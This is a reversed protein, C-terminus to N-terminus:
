DGTPDAIVLMKIPTSVDRFKNEYVKQKTRVNRGMAFRICLFEEGDYLLEWPIQVLYEDISILLFNAKSNKIAKKVEIALLQDFLARGNKKLEEAFNDGSEKNRVAKNFLYTIEESLNEIEKNKIASESYHKLTVDIGKTREFASMKLKDGEQSIEIVLTLM